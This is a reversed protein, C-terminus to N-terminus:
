DKFREWASQRTMGLAEGIRAWSLGRERAALVWTRLHREVQSGAAAVQPLRDLLMRDDLQEWPARVSEPDDSSTSSAFLDLANQACSRCIAALPSAVLRGTEARARLCYSCMIDTVVTGTNRM